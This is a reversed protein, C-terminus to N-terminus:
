LYVCVYVQLFVWLCHLKYMSNAVRPAAYSLFGWCQDNADELKQFEAKICCPLHCYGIDLATNSGSSVLLAESFVISTKMFSGTLASYISM